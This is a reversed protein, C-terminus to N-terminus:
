QSPEGFYFSEDDPDIAFRMRELCGKWGIVSPGPWDASVFWTAEVTVTGGQSALFTVPIREVEGQIRGFRSELFSAGSGSEPLVGLEQAAEVSLVCWEAACDLLAERRDPLHGIRCAVAIFLRVEGQIQDAAYVSRGTYRQVLNM